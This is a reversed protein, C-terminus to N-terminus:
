CSNCVQNNPLTRTHYQRSPIKIPYPYIRIRLSELWLVVQGSTQKRWKGENRLTFQLIWIKKSLERSDLSSAYSSAIVM